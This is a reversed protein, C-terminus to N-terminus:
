RLWDADALGLHSPSTWIARQDEAINTFLHPGLSNDYEMSNALPDSFSSSFEKKSRPEPKSPKGKTVNRGAPAKETVQPSASQACCNATVGEVATLLCCSFVLSMRWRTM